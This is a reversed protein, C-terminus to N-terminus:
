KNCECSAASLVISCMDNRKSVYADCKGCRDCCFSAYWAFSFSRNAIHILRWSLSSYVTISVGHDLAEETYVKLRNKM